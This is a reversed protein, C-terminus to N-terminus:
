GRQTAPSPSKLESLRTKLLARAYELPSHPFVLYTYGASAAGTFLMLAAVVLAPVASAGLALLLAITVAGLALAAFAVAAAGILAGYQAHKLALQSHQKAQELEFAVLARVEAIAEEALLKDRQQEELAADSIRKRATMPPPTANEM